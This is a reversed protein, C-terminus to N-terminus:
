PCRFLTDAPTISELTTREGIRLMSLSKISRDMRDQDIAGQLAPEIKWGNDRIIQYSSSGQPTVRLSQFDELQFDLVQQNQWDSTAHAYRRRGGIRARYIADSGSLRVFTSGYSSDNGVLFSATPQNGDTWIEVVIANGAQLGYADEENTDILADM